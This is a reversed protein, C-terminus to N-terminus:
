SQMHKANQDFFPRKINKTEREGHLIHILQKTKNQKTVTTHREHWMLGCQVHKYAIKEYNRDIKNKM